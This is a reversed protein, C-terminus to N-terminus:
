KGGKAQIYWEKQARLQELIGEAAKLQPTALDPLNAEKFNKALNKNREILLGIADAVTMLEMYSLNLELLPEMKKVPM